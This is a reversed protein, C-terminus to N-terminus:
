GTPLDVIYYNREAAIKGDEIHRQEIATLM